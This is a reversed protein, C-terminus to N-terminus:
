ALETDYITTCYQKNKGRSIYVNIYTRAHTHTYIYRCIYM